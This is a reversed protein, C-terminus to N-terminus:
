FTESQAKYAVAASVFVDSVLRGGTLVTSHMATIFSGSARNAAPYDDWASCPSQMVM